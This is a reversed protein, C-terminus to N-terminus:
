FGHGALQTSTAAVSVGRLNQAFYYRCNWSALELFLKQPSIFEVCPRKRDFRVISGLPAGTASERLFARDGRILDCADRAM